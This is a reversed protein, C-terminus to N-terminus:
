ENVKKNLTDVQAQISQFTEHVEKKYEVLFNNCSEDIEREEKNCKMAECFWPFEPRDGINKYVNDSLKFVNQPGAHKVTSANLYNAKRTLLSPIAHIM